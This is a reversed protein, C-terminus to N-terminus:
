LDGLDVDIDIDDFNIEEETILQHKIKTWDLLPHSDAYKRQKRYEQASMSGFKVEEQSSSGDIEYLSYFVQKAKSAINNKWETIFELETKALGAERKLKKYTIKSVYDSPHHAKIALDLFTYADDFKVKSRYMNSFLEDFNSEVAARSRDKNLLEAKWKDFIHEAKSKSM